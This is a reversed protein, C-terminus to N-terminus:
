DNVYPFVLYELYIDSSIAVHLPGVVACFDMPETQIIMVKAACDEAHRLSLLNALVSWNLPCNGLPVSGGQDQVLRKM